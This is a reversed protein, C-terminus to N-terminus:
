FKCAFNRVLERLSAYLPNTIHFKNLWSRGLPLQHKKVIEPANFLRLGLLIILTGGKLETRSTLCCGFKDVSHSLMPRGNRPVGAGRCCVVPNDPLDQKGSSSRAAPPTDRVVHSCAIDDAPLSSPGRGLYVRAQTFIV